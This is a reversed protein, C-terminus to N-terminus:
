LFTPGTVNTGRPFPCFKNGPNRVEGLLPVQVHPVEDPPGAGGVTIDPADKLGFLTKVVIEMPKTFGKCSFLGFKEPVHALPQVQGHPLNPFTTPMGM